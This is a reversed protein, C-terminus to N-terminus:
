NESCTLNLTANTGSIATINGRYYGWPAEAGFGDSDVTTGSLIITGMVMWNTNDNSVEINVSATVAGTGTVVAHFSKRTNTSIGASAGVQISTANTLMRNLKISNM